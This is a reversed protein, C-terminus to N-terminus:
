ECACNGSRFSNKEAEKKEDEKKGFQVDDNQDCNKEETWEINLHSDDDSKHTLLRKRVTYSARERERQIGRRQVNRKRNEKRTVCLFLFLSNVM